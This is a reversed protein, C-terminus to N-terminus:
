RLLNMVKRPIKRLREVIRELRSPIPDRLIEQATFPNLDKPWEGNEVMGAYKRREYGLIPSADEYTSWRYPIDRPFKEMVQKLARSYEQAYDFWPKPVTEDSFYRSMIEPHDPDWGSFHLFLVPAGNVVLNRQSDYELPREDINWYGINAGLHRVVCLSEFYVPVLNFWLQDGYCHEYLHFCREECCKLFWDIFASSLLGRRIGLFGGNFTGSKLLGYDGQPGYVGSSPSLRHPSVFIESTEDKDLLSLIEGVPYLDSDLYIWCSCDTKDRLYQHAYPRVATSLEFADYKFHLFQVLGQTLFDEAGVLTGVNFSTIESGHDIDIVFVYRKSNPHLEAIRSMLVYAYSM